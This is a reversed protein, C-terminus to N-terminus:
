FFFHLFDWGSQMFVNIYILLCRTLAGQPHCSANVNFRTHAIFLTCYLLMEISHANTQENYMYIIVLKYFVAPHRTDLFYHTQWVNAACRNVM